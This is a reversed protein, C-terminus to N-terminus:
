RPSQKKSPGLSRSFRRDRTTTAGPCAKAILDGSFSRLHSDINIEAVGGEKETKERRTSSEVMLNIM